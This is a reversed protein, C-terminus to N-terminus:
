GHANGITFCLAFIIMLCFICLAPNKKSSANQIHFCRIILHHGQCVYMCLSAFKEEGLVQCTKKLPPFLVFLSLVFPWLQTQGLMMKPINTVGSSKLVQVYFGGDLSTTCKSSCSVSCWFRPIRSLPNQFTTFFIQHDGWFGYADWSMLGNLVLYM